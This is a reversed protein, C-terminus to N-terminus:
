FLEVLLMTNGNSDKVEIKSGNMLNDTRLRWLGGVADDFLSALKACANCLRRLCFWCALHYSGVTIAFYSGDWSRTCTVLLKDLKQVVTGFM